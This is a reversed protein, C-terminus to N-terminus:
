LSATWTWIYSHGNWRMLISQFEVKQQKM